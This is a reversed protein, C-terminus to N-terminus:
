KRRRFILLAAALGALAMTAPEPVPVLTFGTTLSPAAGFVALAPLSGGTIPDTGGAAGTGIKSVGFWGGPTGAFLGNGTDVNGLAMWAQNFAAGQDSSWGVVLFSKTSGPTWGTTQVGLLSGGQLRGATGTNTALVGAFSFVHPNAEGEVAMLLAYYFGQPANPTAIITGDLLKQTISTATSNQFKVLGQAFAGTALAALCLTTVLKKM